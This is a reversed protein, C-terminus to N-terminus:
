SHTNPNLHTLQIIKGGTPQLANNGRAKPECPFKIINSLAELDSKGFYQKVYELFVKSFLNNFASFDSNIYISELLTGIMDRNFGMSLFTQLIADATEKSSASEKINSLATSKRLQSISACEMYKAKSYSNYGNNQNQKIRMFSDNKTESMYGNSSDSIYYLLHEEDNKIELKIGNKVSLSFKCSKSKLSFSLIRGNETLDLSVFIQGFENTIPLTYTGEYNTNHVLRGNNESRPFNIVRPENNYARLFRQHFKDANTEIGTLAYNAIVLVIFPNKSDSITSRITRAYRM